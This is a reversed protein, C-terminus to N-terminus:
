DAPFFTKRKSTASVPMPKPASSIPLSNWGNMCASVDDDRLDPGLNLGGDDVTRCHDKEGGAVVILLTPDLTLGVM